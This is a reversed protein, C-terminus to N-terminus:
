YLALEVLVPISLDVDSIHIELSSVSLLPLSFPRPSQQSCLHTYIHTQWPALLQLSYILLVQHLIYSAIEAVPTFVTTFNLNLFFVVFKDFKQQLFYFRSSLLPLEREFHARM